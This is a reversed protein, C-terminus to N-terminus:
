ISDGPLADAYRVCAEGDPLNFVWLTKQEGAVRVTEQSKTVSDLDDRVELDDSGRVMEIAAEWIGDDGRYLPLVVVSASM